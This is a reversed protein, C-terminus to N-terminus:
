GAGLKKQFDAILHNVDVTVHKEDKKASFGAAKEVVAAADMLLKLRKPDSMLRTDYAVNGDEDVVQMESLLGEMVSLHVLMATSANERAVQMYGEATAIEKLARNRKRTELSRRQYEQLTQPPVEAFSPRNIGNGVALPKGEAIRKQEDETLPRDEVEGVLVQGQETM